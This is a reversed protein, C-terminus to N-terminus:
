LALLWKHRSVSTSWKIFYILIWQCTSDVWFLNAAYCCFAHILCCKGATTVSFFARGTICWRKTQWWWSVRWSTRMLLSFFIFLNFRWSCKFTFHMHFSTCVCCTSFVSHLNQPSLPLLTTVKCHGKQTCLSKLEEELYRSADWCTKPPLRGVSLSRNEKESSWRTVTRCHSADTTQTQTWWIAKM